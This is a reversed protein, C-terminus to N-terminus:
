IVIDTERYSPQSHGISIIQQQCDSCLAYIKLSDEDQNLQKSVDELMKKLYKKEIECEFVSYQVRYVYDKLVESM